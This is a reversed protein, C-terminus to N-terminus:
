NHLLSATSKSLLGEFCTDGADTGDGVWYEIKDEANFDWEKLTVQQDDSYGCNSFVPFSEWTLPELITNLITQYCDYIKLATSLTMLFTELEWGANLCVTGSEYIALEGFLNMMFQDFYLLLESFM